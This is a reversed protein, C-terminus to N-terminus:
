SNARLHGHVLVVVNRSSWDSAALNLYRSNIPSIIACSSCLLTTIDLDKKVVSVCPLGYSMKSCGFDATFPLLTLWHTLLAFGPIPAEPKARSLLNWWTLTMAKPLRSPVSPDPDTCM